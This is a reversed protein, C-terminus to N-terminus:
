WSSVKWGWLRLMVGEYYYGGVYVIFRRVKLEAITFGRGARVKSNYKITQCRVVPRLLNVPRPAMAAAREERHARRSEKKAPQNFWTKIYRQWYKHFHANPVVNNHKM